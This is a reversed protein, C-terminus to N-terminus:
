MAEWRPSYEGCRDCLSFVHFTLGGSFPALPSGMRFYTRWLHMRPSFRRAVFCLARGGWWCRHEDRLLREDSTGWSIRGHGCAVCRWLGNPTPGGRCWTSREADAARQRREVDAVWREARLAVRLLLRRVFGM